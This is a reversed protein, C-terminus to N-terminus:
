RKQAFLVQFTVRYFLGPMNALRNKRFESSIYSTRNRKNKRYDTSSEGFTVVTTKSLNFLFRWMNRYEEMAVIM